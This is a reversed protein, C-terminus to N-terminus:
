LTSGNHSTGREGDVGVQKDSAGMKKIALFADYRKKWHDTPSIMVEATEEAARVIADAVVRPRATDAPGTFRAGTVPTWLASTRVPDGRKVGAVPSAVPITVKADGSPPQAASESGGASAPPEPESTEKVRVLAGRTKNRVWDVIYERLAPVSALAIADMGNEDRATADAGAHLLM